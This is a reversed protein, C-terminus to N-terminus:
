GSSSRARPASTPPSRGPARAAREAARRRRAHLFLGVQADRFRYISQMPDGVVFVTRGDGASGAAPSGSSCSGSRTPRTRSNTWWCTSCARTSRFCCTPPRRRAHRARAARGHAIETFDVEGASPSSCACSRWRPSRAARSDRGARGVPQRHLQGPPALGCRPSRRRAAPSPWAAGRPAAPKKRWEGKQTLVEGRDPSAQPHLAQARSCAATRARRRADSGARARTPAEGTKRLWQDRRASCGRSCRADRTAVNNDLHALLRAVPPRRDGGLTRAAAERYLESADEAVGPQAGFRSLVPMQARSRPACRTSPRSACGRRSSPRFSRSCASRM